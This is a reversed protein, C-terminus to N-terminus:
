EKNTLASTDLNFYRYYIPIKFDTRLKNLYKKSLVTSPCPGIIVLESVNAIQNWYAYELLQGLGQRINTKISQSTKIENM